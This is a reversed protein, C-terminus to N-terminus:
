PALREIRWAAGDPVYRLRDHLRHTRGQWFEFSAPKVRFGGWFPPVPVERGEYEAEIESVRADLERRSVIESQLSAWAGVQAGRARTRFYAASEERAVREVTGEIRIQRQLTPWFFLLAAHPNATLERGKRSGYNTFFVFGRADREKLLVMRVSPQGDTVTALAMANPEPLGAADAFWLDFQEFPNPSAGHELLFEAAM